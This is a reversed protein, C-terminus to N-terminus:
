TREATLYRVTGDEDTRRQARDRKVLSNLRRRAKEIENDAPANTEFMASAADRVTLGHPTEALARELDVQGHVRSHGIAHDHRVRLPGVEEAPQKLHRLEVVLDGPEGWLLLVSGMGATLWRSGYVDALKKPPGSGPQGKRQHHVVLIEVGAAILEQIAINVRSGVDDKTLDVAVDKLSDIVVDSVGRLDAVFEALARPEIGVDFPLPGRWVVLRDRLTEMHKPGVMRHLSRAAQRPRDAAVYLVRGPAEEVRLGLLEPRIGIRALALQQAVATKGVGDPGVLMLPEGQAWAVGGDPDGWVAPVDDPLGYVFQAGDVALGVEFRSGASYDDAKRSLAPVAPPLEVLVGEGVLDRVEALVAREGAPHARAVVLRHGRSLQRRERETILRLRLAEDLREVFGPEGITACRGSAPVSM